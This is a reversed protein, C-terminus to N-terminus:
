LKDAPSVPNLCLSSAGLEWCLSQMCVIISIVYVLVYIGLLLPFLPMERVVHTKIVRIPCFM